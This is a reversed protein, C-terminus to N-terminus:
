SDEGVSEYLSRPLPQSSAVLERYDDFRDFMELRAPYRRTASCRKCVADIVDDRPDSLVWHHKCEKIATQVV